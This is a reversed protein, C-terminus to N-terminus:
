QQQKVLKADPNINLHHMAIQPDLDPMDEYNWSFVNKYERILQILDKKKSPSLSKSIFIPKPNVEDGLNVQTV